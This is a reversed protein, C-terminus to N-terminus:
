RRFVMSVRYSDNIEHFLYAMDLQLHNDFLNVFGIGASYQPNVSAGTINRAAGGRLCFYHWINKESGFLLRSPRDPYPSLDLDVECNFGAADIVGIGWFMSIPTGEYYGPMSSTKWFITNLFDKLKIAMVLHGSRYRIGLTTAFGYADGTVAGTGSDQNKGISAARFEAALGISIGPIWHNVSYAIATVVRLEQMLADGSIILAEGHAWNEGLRGSFAALSYPIMDFQRTYSVTGQWATTETLGAPNWLVANVDNAQAIFAGGMGLPRAGLGIDIFAGPLHSLEAAYGAVSFLLVGLVVRLKRKMSKQKNM